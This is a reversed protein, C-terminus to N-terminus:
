LYAQYAQDPVLLPLMQADLLAILPIKDDRALVHVSVVVSCSRVVFGLPVAEMAVEVLIDDDDDVMNYPMYLIYQHFVHHSVNVLCPLFQNIYQQFGYPM